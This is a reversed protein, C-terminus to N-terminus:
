IKVGEMKSQMIAPIGVEEEMAIFLDFASNITDDNAGKELYTQILYIEDPYLWKKDEETLRYGLINQARLSLYHRQVLSAEESLIQRKVREQERQAADSKRTLRRLFSADVSVPTEERLGFWLAKEDTSMEYSPNLYLKEGITALDIINQLKDRTNVTNLNYEKLYVDSGMEETRSSFTVRPGQHKRTFAIFRPQKQMSILNTIGYAIEEGELPQEEQLTMYIATQIEEKSRCAFWGLTKSPSIIVLRHNFVKSGHADTWEEKKTRKWM